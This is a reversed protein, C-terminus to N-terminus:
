IKQLEMYFGYYPIANRFIIGKASFINKYMKYEGNIKEESLNSEIVYHFSGLMKKDKKYLFCRFTGGWNVESSPVDCLFLFDCDAKPNSILRVDMPIHEYLELVADKNFVSIDKLEPYVVFGKHTYQLTM